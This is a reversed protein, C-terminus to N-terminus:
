DVMQLPCLKHVEGYIILMSMGKKQSLNEDIILQLRTLQLDNLNKNAIPEFAM